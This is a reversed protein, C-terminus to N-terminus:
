FIVGDISHPTMEGRLREMDVAINSFLFIHVLLMDATGRLKDMMSLHLHSVHVATMGSGRGDASPSRQM